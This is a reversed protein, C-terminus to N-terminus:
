AIMAALLTFAACLFALVFLLACLILFFSIKTSFLVVAASFVLLPWLLLVGLILAGIGHLLVTLPKAFVRKSAIKASQRIGAEGSLLVTLGLVPGIGTIFYFPRLVSWLLFLVSRLISLPLLRLADFPEIKGRTFLLFFYIGAAFFALMDVLMEGFLYPGARVVYAIGLKTTDPELNDTIVADGSRNEVVTAFEQFSLGGLALLQVQVQEAVDERSMSLAEALEDQIRDIQRQTFGSAVLCVMSFSVIAVIVPTAKSRLLTFAGSLMLSFSIARFPAM